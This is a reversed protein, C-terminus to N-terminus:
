LLTGKEHAESKGHTEGGRARRNQESVASSVPSHQNSCIMVGIYTRILLSKNLLSNQVVCSILILLVAAYGDADADSGEKRM